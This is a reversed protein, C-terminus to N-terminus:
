QKHERVIRVNYMIARKKHIHLEIKRVFSDLFRKWCDPALREKEDPQVIREWNM